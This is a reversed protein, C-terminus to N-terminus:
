ATEKESITRARRYEDWATEGSDPVIADLIQKFLDTIFSM